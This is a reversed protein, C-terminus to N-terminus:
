VYGIRSSYPTLKCLMAALSSATVGVVRATTSLLLVELRSAQLSRILDAYKSGGGSEWHLL